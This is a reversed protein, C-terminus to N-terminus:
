YEITNGRIIIKDGPEIGERELGHMIGMKKMIDRLRAVAHYSEFDTRMAFREIKRGKVEFANKTKTVKWADDTKLQL